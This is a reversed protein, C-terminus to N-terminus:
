KLRMWCLCGSLSQRQPNEYTKKEMFAQEAQLIYASIHTLIIITGITFIATFFGMSKRM